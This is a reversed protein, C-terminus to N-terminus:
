AHENQNCIMSRIARRPNGMSTVSKLVRKSYRWFRNMLRAKCASYRPGTKSAILSQTRQVLAPHRRSNRVMASRFMARNSVTVSAVLECIRISEDFSGWLNFNRSRIGSSSTFTMWKTRSPRPTACVHMRSSPQDASFDAKSHRRPIMESSFINARNSRLM